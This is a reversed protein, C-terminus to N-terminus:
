PQKLVMKINELKGDINEPIELNLIKCILPYINVNKIEPITLGSKFAPGNAYFIGQMDKYNTSYGHVGINKFPGMGKKTSFYYGYDPIIQVTGWDPNSPTYEFGPTNETKYVKFHLEKPKLFALISDTSVNPKPHLSVFAGNSISTYLNNNEIQTLSIFNKTNVEAMGHDSVIIINVPLKTKAIGEFLNGLNKDLNYLKNKLELDNNPGYKHGIDDMDSFYMTILKPRKNEPLNLWNLVDNVRKENKIKADYKKYYTPHKGQINAETGVFFYSATIINHKQAQLWIPTGNYFEGDEVVTRNGISYVADKKYSYFTNGILGHKDPYMGTAISYHNPFTKSPFSSILGKSNVGTQIFKSLNPPSFRNVYDWRFGDLSILIVYPKGEPTRTNIETKISGPKATKCSQFILLLAILYFLLKNKIM